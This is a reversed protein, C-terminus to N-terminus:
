ASLVNGIHRRSAQGVVREFFFVPIRLTECPLNHANKRQTVAASEAEFKAISKRIEEAQDVTGPISVNGRDDARLGLPDEISTKLALETLHVARIRRAVPMFVLNIEGLKDM